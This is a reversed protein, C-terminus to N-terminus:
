CGETNSRGALKGQGAKEPPRKEAIRSFVESIIKDRMKLTRLRLMLCM